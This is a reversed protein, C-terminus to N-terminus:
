QNSGTGNTNDNGDNGFHSDRWGRRNGASNDKVIWSGGRLERVPALRGGGPDLCALKRGANLSVTRNGSAVIVAGRSLNVNRVAGNISGISSIRRM